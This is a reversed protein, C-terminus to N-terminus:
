QILRLTLPSSFAVYEGPTQQSPQEVESVDAASSEAADSGDLEPGPESMSSVAPQLSEGKIASAGASIACAAGNQAAPSGWIRERAKAISSAMMQSWEDAHVAESSCATGKRPAAGLGFTLPAPLAGNLQRGQESAPSSAPVSSAAAAPQDVTASSASAATRRRRQRAPKATTNSDSAGSSHDLGADAKLLNRLEALLRLPVHLAEADRQTAAAQNCGVSAGSHRTLLTSGQSRSETDTPTFLRPDPLLTAAAWPYCRASPPSTGQLASGTGIFGSLRCNCWCATM